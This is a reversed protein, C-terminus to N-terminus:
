FRLSIRQELTATKICAIRLRLVKPGPTGSNRILFLTVPLRMVLKASKMEAMSAFWRANTLMRLEFLSKFMIRGNVTTSFFRSILSMLMSSSLKMLMSKPELM